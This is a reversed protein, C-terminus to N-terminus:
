SSATRHDADYPAPPACLFGKQQLAHQIENLTQEDKACIHHGHLDDTLKKLPYAQGSHVSQLFRQVDKRSHIILDVVIRGYVGHQVIVNQVQGGLDVITNLEEEIQADTHRLWLIRSCSPSDQHLIYGRYTSIINVGSSKLLAIDQVIIQRSVGFHQALASGSQPGSNQKLIQLIHTRRSEGDM